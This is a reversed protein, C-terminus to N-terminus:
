RCRGPPSTRPTNSGTAATSSGCRGAAWCGPSAPPGCGAAPCSQCASRCSARQAGGRPAYLHRRLGLPRAASCHRSSCVGAAAGLCGQAPQATVSAIFRATDADLAPHFSPLAQHLSWCCLTSSPAALSARRHLQRHRWGTGAVGQLATIGFVQSQSRLGTSYPFPHGARCKVPAQLAPWRQRPASRSGTSCPAAPHAARQPRAAHGAWRQTGPCRQLCAPSRCTRASHAYSRQCHCAETICGPLSCTSGHKCNPPLGLDCAAHLVRGHM